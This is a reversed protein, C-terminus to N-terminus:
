RPGDLPWAQGFRFVALMGERAINHSEGLTLRGTAGALDLRAPVGDVFRRAVAFADLGLAYLRDLVRNGMARRPMRALSPHDPAVIWPLDVFVVGELDAQVAPELPQNVLSSAFAPIRPAFSRALAAQAADLAIVAAEATSDALQRRLLSLGDVSPDFAFSQPVRGGALLWEGAFATAFRRMLPADGGIVAVSQLNDSRLKRALVRADSEIALALTYIQPPLSAPEDLHNLALTLPLARDSAILARLDDRVLPGVVVRAGLAVAADFAGLVNGEAHAVVRVRKMANAAQAAALFGERVAEAASTYLPSELPLVIVIDPADAPRPAPVPAPVPAPPAPVLPQPPAPAIWDLLSPNPVQPVLGPQSATGQQAACFASAGALSLAAAVRVVRHVLAAFMM